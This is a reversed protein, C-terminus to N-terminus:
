IVKRLKNALTLFVAYVILSVAISTGFSCFTDTDPNVLFRIGSLFLWIVLLFYVTWGFFMSNKWVTLGKGQKQKKDAILKGDTYIWGGEERLFMDATQFLVAKPLPLISSIKDFTVHGSDSEHIQTIANKFAALCQKKNLPLLHPIFYNWVANGNIEPLEINWEAATDTKHCLILGGTRDLRPRINQQIPVASGLIIFLCSSSSLGAYETYYRTLFKEACLFYEATLNNKLDGNQIPTIFLAAVQISIKGNRLEYTRCSICNKAFRMNTDLLLQEQQLANLFQETLDDCKQIDKVRIQRPLLKAAVPLNIYPICYNRAKEFMNKELNSFFAGMDRCACSLSESLANDLKNEHIASVVTMSAAKKKWSFNNNLFFMRNEPSAIDANGEKDVLILDGRSICYIGRRDKMGHSAIAAFPKLEEPIKSLKKEAIKEASEETKELIKKNYGDGTYDIMDQLITGAEDCFCEIYAYPIKGYGNKGWDAGWSNRVTFYGGGPYGDEDQYGTLLMEHGGRIGCLFAFCVENKENRRIEYPPLNIIGSSDDCDFLTVGISVPMPRRNNAGCLISKIEEVNRPEKLLHLGATVIHRRADEHVDASFDAFGYASDYNEEMGMRSYPCLDYRCIGYTELAQFCRHVFTGDNILPKIENLAQIILNETLQQPMTKKTIMQMASKFRNLFATDAEGSTLLKHANELYWDMEIKKTMAFLYQVSLRHKCDEYYEILATTANAVCTGRIAQNYIPPMKDVLSYASPYNSAEPTKMYQGQSLGILYEIVDQPLNM